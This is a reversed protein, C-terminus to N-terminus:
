VLHLTHHHEVKKSSSFSSTKSYVLISAGLHSAMILKHPLSTTIYTTPANTPHPMHYHGDRQPGKLISVRTKLDEWLWVSQTMIGVVLLKWTVQLHLIEMMPRGLDKVFNSCFILSINRMKMMMNMHEIGQGYNLVGVSPNLEINGFRQLEGKSFSGGRTCKMIYM